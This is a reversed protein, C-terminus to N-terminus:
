HPTNTLKIKKIIEKGKSTELYELTTRPLFKKLEQEKDQRILERVDSASIARGDRELREVLVPQVGYQPLVELIASNYASTVQCYPETGIYRRKINFAPAIYKGFIQADIGTYAQLKEDYSRLFYSPFTSSSIIYEGGPIVHVNKLDEVGRRVLEIRDEFPFLSRNEEVIFVVVQSNEMSAREILYRHGLTFPNCNMVLAAKEGNDLGSQKAMNAVYAKVNSTGGELLAAKDMSAVTRYGLGRFIEINKPKTFIFTGYVGKEFLINTVHTILQAAIGEGQLNEKVAFCKLVRGAFSCTGVIEGDLRACATYEVDDDLRLGFGKLFEEIINRDKNLNVDEISIM